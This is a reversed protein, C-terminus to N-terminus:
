SGRARQFCAEFGFSRARSATLQLWGDSVGYTPVASVAGAIADEAVISGRWLESGFVSQHSQARAAVQDGTMLSTTVPPTPLESRVVGILLSSIRM